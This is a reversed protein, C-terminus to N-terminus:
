TSSMQNEEGQPQNAHVSIRNGTGQRWTAISLDDGAFHIAHLKPLYICLLTLYSNMLLTVCLTAVMQIVDVATSYVPSAAVCVVLTSYVSIAIFKSENYNSPVKRARFAFYCCTVIILMNYGCSVIFGTGLKCYIALSPKRNTPM